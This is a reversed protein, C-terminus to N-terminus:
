ASRRGRGARVVKAIARLIKNVSEGDPFVDLVDPDVVVFNNGRRYRAATVGRVGGSFDYEKRMTDTEDSRRRKSHRKKM